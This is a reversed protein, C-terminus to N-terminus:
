GEEEHPFWWSKSPDYFPCDEMKRGTEMCWGAFATDMFPYVGDMTSQVSVTSGDKLTLEIVTSGGTLVYLKQSVIEEYRHEQSKRGFRCLLFSEGDYFIGFSLYHVALAIGMLLVVLGAWTLVSDGTCGTVIGLIGLVSFMVGFIGYRKSARIAMGSRHQAKSRFLKTFARDVLFCVAFVLAAIILILIPNM